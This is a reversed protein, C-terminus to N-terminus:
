VDWWHGDEHREVNEFHVAFKDGAFSHIPVLRKAAVASALKKLDELYAHGSAHHVQMPIDHRNLFDHYPQEKTRELYGPWLSWIATADELCGASEFERAMSIRFTMIIENHRAKLGEPFIRFAKIADVREFAKTRAVQIRQSNPVYVLLNDWGPKPISHMATAEAMTATYLDLVLTKKTRKAVRYLTVLRDINQSSYTVLTMGPTASVQRAIDLEVEAETSGTTVEEEARVNTGEMLMM